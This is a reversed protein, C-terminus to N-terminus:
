EKIKTNPLLKKINEKEIASLKNKDIALDQLSVLEKLQPSIVVLQNDSLYLKELRQLQSMETPLSTLQNYHLRLVYLNKLNGIQPPLQNIQNSDAYLIHLKQLKDISSPLTTLNNKNIVLIELNTLNSIEDPLSKVQNGTLQFDKLLRMQSIEAPLKEIQCFNIELSQLKPLQALLKFVQKEDLAPNNTLNIKKLNKLDELGDPLRELRNNSLDLMQLNALQAIEKPLEQLKNKSLWLENLNKMQLIEQPFETLGQGRLDMRFISDPKQMAQAISYAPMAMQLFTEGLLNGREELYLVTNELGKYLDQDAWGNVILRMLDDIEKQSIMQKMRWNPFVDPMGRDMALGVLMFASDTSFKQDRAYARLFQGMTKHPAFDSTFIFRVQNHTQQQYHALQTALKKKNEVSLYNIQDDIYPLILQADAESLTKTSQEASGCAFLISIFVFLLLYTVKM